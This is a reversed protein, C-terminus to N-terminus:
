LKLNQLPAFRPDVSFRECNCEGSNLNTGCIPCLGKCDERCLNKIPQNVVLMDRVLETIDISDDVIETRSIEEDFNHIQNETAQEICRDCTFVKTCSITGGIVFTSGDNVVAGNIEINGIIEGNDFYDSDFIKDAPVVFRFPSDSGRHIQVKLM